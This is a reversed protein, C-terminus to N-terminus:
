KIFSISDRRDRKNLIVDYKKLYEPQGIFLVYSTNKLTMLITM